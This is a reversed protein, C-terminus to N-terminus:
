AASAESRLYFRKVEKGVHFNHRIGEEYVKRCITYLGHSKMRILEIENGNNGDRLVLSCKFM